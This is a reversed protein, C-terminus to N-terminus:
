KQTTGSNPLFNFREGPKVGTDEITLKKSETQYKQIVLKYFSFDVSVSLM